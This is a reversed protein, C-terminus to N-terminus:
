RLESSRYNARSIAIVKYNEVLLEETLFQAMSELGAIAVIPKMSSAMEISPSM